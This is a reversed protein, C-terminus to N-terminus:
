NKQHKRQISLAIVVQAPLFFVWIMLDVYNNVYYLLNGTLTTMGNIKQLFVHIDSLFFLTLGIQFLRNKSCLWVSIVNTIFCIYYIIGICLVANLGVGLKAAALIIIAGVFPIFTFHKLTKRMRYAYLLTIILYGIVGALLFTTFECIIDTPLLVLYICKVVFLDWQDFEKKSRSLVYVITCLISCFHLSLVLKNFGYKLELLVFAVYLITEIAIFAKKLKKM